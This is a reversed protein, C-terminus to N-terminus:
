YELYKEKEIIHQIPIDFVVNNITAAVFTQEPNQERILNLYYGVTDGFGEPFKSADNLNDVLDYKLTDSNEDLRVFKRKDALKIIVEM